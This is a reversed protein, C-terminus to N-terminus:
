KGGRAGKLLEFLSSPQFGAQVQKDKSRERVQIGLVTLAIGWMPTLAVMANVIEVAKEPKGVIAWCLAITQLVWTLTIAYGFSPRWRRVFADNSAAEARMTKNIEVLRATESEVTLRRLEVQREKEIQRIRILAEPKDRLAQEVAEPSNEVGLASSILSGAAAGAPGGLLGGLLPAAKGVLDAIRSWNM